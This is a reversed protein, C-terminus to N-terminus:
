MKVITFICFPGVIVSLAEYLMLEHGKLITKNDIKYYCLILIMLYYTDLCWRFIIKIIKKGTYIVDFAFNPLLM